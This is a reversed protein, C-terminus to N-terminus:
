HDLFWVSGKNPAYIVNCSFIKPPIADLKDQKIGIVNQPLDRVKTDVSDDFSNAIFNTIEEM